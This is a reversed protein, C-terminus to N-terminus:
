YVLEANPYEYWDTAQSRDTAWESFSHGPTNYAENIPTWEIPYKFSNGEVCIAWPFNDNYVSKMGSAYEAIVEDTKFPVTHVEWYGGNYGEVIFLDLHEQTFLSTKSEDNLVFTYTVVAPEVDNRKYEYYNDREVTNLFSNDVSGVSSTRRGLSWHANSFLNLVVDQTTNMSQPLREETTNIIRLSANAPFDEDLNGDRSFSSIDSDSLGEIRLAAGIQESAGVADLSVTLTVTNGDVVPTLTIVADNFDYDGIQPFNDEFCYRLALPRDVIEEGGDNGDPNYGAGTCAGAPISMFNPATAESVFNSLHGRYYDVWYGYPNNAKEQASIDKYKTDNTTDGRYQGHSYLETIDWDFYCNGRQMLDTGNNAQVKQMKVIAYEGEDSPGQFVTNNVYATGVNIVAKDMLINPKAPVYALAKDPTSADFGETWSQTFEAVGDVDLRSNNLMTLQGIGADETYHMYCGNVVICNYADMAIENCRATISGFNTIRGGATNRLKDVTVNGCNYFDSGNLNLEGNTSIVGANYNPMGNNVYLYKGATGTVKGGAMVLLRGCNSFSTNDDVVLEGGNAVVITVGNLTNGQLHVKGEVYIVKDNIVGAEANVHFIKTIETGQAVRFHSGDALLGNDAEGSQDKYAFTLGFFAMNGENFYIRYTHGQEVDFTLPSNWWQRNNLENGWINVYSSGTQDYATLLRSGDVRYYFNLTGSKQPTFAFAAREVCAGFGLWSYSGDATAASGSGYTTLTAVATSGNYITHAQGNAPNDNQQVIYSVQVEGSGQNVTVQNNLTQHTSQELDADTFTGYQRMEQLTVTETRKLYNNYIIWSASSSSLFENIYEKCYDVSPNLMQEFTKAYSDQYDAQSARTVAATRAKSSTGVGVTADIRSNSIPATRVIRRGADDFLAIYVQKLHLPYTFSAQKTEGSAMEATYLVTPTITTSLPSSDYVKLRYSVGYDGLVTLRADATGMTTWNHTPDVNSVPFNAQLLQRYAEPDFYDEKCSTAALTALLLSMTFYKSQRIMKIRM